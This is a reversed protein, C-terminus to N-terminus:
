KKAVKEFLVKGMQKDRFGYFARGACNKPLYKISNEHVKSYDSIFYYLLNFM